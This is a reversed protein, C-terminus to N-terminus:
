RSAKAIAQQACAVYAEVLNACRLVDQMQIDSHPDMFADPM